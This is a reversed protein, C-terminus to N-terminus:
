RLPLFSGTRYRIREAVCARQLCTRRILAAALAVHKLQLVTVWGLKIARLAILSCKQIVRLVRWRFGVRGSANPHYPDPLYVEIRQM